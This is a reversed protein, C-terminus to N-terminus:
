DKKGRGGGKTEAKKGKGPKVAKRAEPADMGLSPLLNVADNKRKDVIKAYIQTTGIDKHGMLKSVVFIDNGSSISLTAFTHRAVHFTLHKGIGADKAWQQVGKNAKDHAAAHYRGSASVLSPFVFGESSGGSAKRLKGLINVAERSLPLTEAGQGKTMRYNLVWQGQGTGGMRMLMEWRVKCLDSFRLGTFCALLFAQRCELPVETETAALRQLEELSLFTRLSEKPKLRQSAPVENMPNGLIIKRRVAHNLAESIHTMAQRVTNHSYMGSLFSQFDMLFDATVGTFPMEANAGLYERLRRAMIRHNRHQKHAVFEDVFELFSGRSRAENTLGSGQVILEYERKARMREATERKLKDEETLKRGKGPRIHINLFEYRRTGKHSIDLLLSIRGDKLKRERLIVSM